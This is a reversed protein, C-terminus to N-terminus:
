KDILICGHCVNRMLDREIYSQCGERQHKLCFIVNTKCNFIVVKHVNIIQSTLIHLYRQIGFWDAGPRRVEADDFNLPLTIIHM